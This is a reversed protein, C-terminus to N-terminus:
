PEKKNSKIMEIARLIRRQRTEEKKAEIIWKIYEKKHTYALREFIARADKNKKLVSFFDPPIDVEKKEPKAGSENLKVAELIYDTLINENIEKVASFKVSRNHLNNGGETLIGEPDSMLSGKFFTLSVHQKFAGFGCIMGDKQYNPGWKWEENIRSDAKLIIKRLRTCIAQAFPAASSIYDDILESAASNTRNKTM